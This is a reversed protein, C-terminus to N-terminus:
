LRRDRQGSGIFVFSTGALYAKKNSMLFYIICIVGAQYFVRKRKLTRKSGTVRFCSKTHTM